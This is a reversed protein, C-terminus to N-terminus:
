FIESRVWGVDSLSLFLGDVSGCDRVGLVFRDVKCCQQDVAAGVSLMWHCNARNITFLSHLVTILAIPHRGRVVYLFSSMPSFRLSLPYLKGSSHICPFQPELLDLASLAPKLSLYKINYIAIRTTLSTELKLRMTMRLSYTTRVRRLRTSNRILGRYVM